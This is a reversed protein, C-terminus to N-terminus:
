IASVLPLRIAVPQAVLAPRRKSRIYSLNTVHPAIFTLQSDPHNAGLRNRCSSQKLSLTRFSLTNASHSKEAVNQNVNAERPGLMGAQHGSGGLEDALRQAM